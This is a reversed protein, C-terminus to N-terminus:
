RARRRELSELFRDVDRNDAWEPLTYVEFPDVRELRERVIWGLVFGIVAGLVASM